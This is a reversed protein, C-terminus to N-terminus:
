HKPIWPADALDDIDMVMPGGKEPDDSFARSILSQYRGFERRLQNLAETDGTKEAYAQQEELAKTYERYTSNGEIDPIMVVIGVASPVDEFKFGVEFEEPDFSERNKMIFQPISLAYLSERSLGGHMEYQQNVLQMFEWGQESLLQKLRNKGLPDTIKFKDSDIFAVVDAIFQSKEDLEIFAASVAFFSQNTAQGPEQPIGNAVQVLDASKKKEAEEAAKAEESQQLLLVAVSQPASITAPLLASISTM